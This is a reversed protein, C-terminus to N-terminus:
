ESNSGVEPVERCAIILNYVNYDSYDSYYM